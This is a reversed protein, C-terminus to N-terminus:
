EHGKRTRESLILPIHTAAEKPLARTLRPDDMIEVALQYARFGYSEYFRTAQPSDFQCTHLWVREVGRANARLFVHDLMLRGIGAGTAAEILGIYVIEAQGPECFDIELLGITAGNQKLTFAEIDPDALLVGLQKASYELRSVWLWREGVSKFAERYNNIDYQSLQYICVDDPWHRVKIEFPALREYYITLAALKGPPLPYYGNETPLSRAVFDTKM